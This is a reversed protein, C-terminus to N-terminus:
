VIVLQSINGVVFKIEQHILNKKEGEEENAEDRNMKIMQMRSIKQRTNM